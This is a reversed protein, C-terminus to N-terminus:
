ASKWPIREGNGNRAAAIAAAMRVAQASEQPPCRDVREGGRACRAFYAIEEAYGNVDQLPLNQEVGAHCLKTPHQFLRPIDSVPLDPVQGVVVPCHSVHGRPAPGRGAVSKKLVRNPPYRNFDYQISGESGTVRYKMTLPFKGPHWGGVIQVTFGADYFLDASVIDIASEERGTAAIAAPAGFLLLTM